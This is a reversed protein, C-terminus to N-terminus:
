RPVTKKKESFWFNLIKELLGGWLALGAALLLLAPVAIWSSKEKLFSAFHIAYPQHVLYIGYSFSGALALAQGLYPVRAWFGSAGAVVLFCAAGTLFDVAVYGHPIQYVALAVPYLLLGAALGRGHLLWNEFADPNRAYWTGFVMGLAFEPLRSLGCGGLVWQGSAPHLYLLYIRAFFGIV